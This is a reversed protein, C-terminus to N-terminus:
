ANIADLESSGAVGEDYMSGFLWSELIFISGLNAGHQYRYRLIDKPTPRGPQQSPAGPGQQEPLLQPPGLVCTLFTAWCRHWLDTRWAAGKLIKGNGPVFM